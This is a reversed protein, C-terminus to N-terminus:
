SMHFAFSLADLIYDICASGFLSLSRPQFSGDSGHPGCRKGVM